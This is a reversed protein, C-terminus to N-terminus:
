NAADGTCFRRRGTEDTYTGLSADFNPYRSVCDRLWDETWPEFGSSAKAPTAPTATPAARQAVRGGEPAPTPVPVRMADPMQAQPRAPEPKDVPVDPDPYVTVAQEAPSLKAFEVSGPARGLQVDDKEPSARRFDPSIRIIKTTGSYVIDLGDPGYPRRDLRATEVDIIKPAHAGPLTHFSPAIQKEDLARNIQIVSISGGGTGSTGYPAGESGPWGGDELRSVSGHHRRGSYSGYGGHPDHLRPYRALEVGDSVSGVSGVARGAMASPAASVAMAMSFLIHQLRM